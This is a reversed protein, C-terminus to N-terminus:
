KEENNVLKYAVPKINVLIDPQFKEEKTLDFTKDPIIADKLSWVYKFSKDKLEGGEPM